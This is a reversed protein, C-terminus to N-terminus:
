WRINPTEPGLKQLLKFYDEITDITEDTSSVECLDTDLQGKHAMYYSYFSEVTFEKSLYPQVDTIIVPNGWAVYDDSFNTM